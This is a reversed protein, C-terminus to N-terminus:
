IFKKYNMYCSKGIGLVPLAISQIDTSKIQDFINQVCKRLDSEFEVKATTRIWRPSFVLIVYKYPMGPRVPSIFASLWQHNRRQADKWISNNNLVTQISKAIICDGRCNLSEPCVVADVNLLSIDTKQVTVEIGGQRPFTFKLSDGFTKSPSPDSKVPSKPM